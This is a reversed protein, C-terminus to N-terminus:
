RDSKAWRRRQAQAVIAKADASMPIGKPRGPRAGSDAWTLVDSERVAIRSLIIRHPLRGQEVAKYVAARSVGRLTAAEAPTLWKEEAVPSPKSRQLSDTKVSARKRPTKNSPM